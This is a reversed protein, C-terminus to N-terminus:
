EVLGALATELKRRARTLRVGVANGSLGLIEGVEAIPLEELYRLVVVERYRRPLARVASRVRACTERRLSPGAASPAPKPRQSDRRGRWLRLRLLRNRRQRRCHNVTIRFLWTSLQSEGRFSALNQMATMFVDQVVDEIDDNWGLLRRALAAVRDQHRAVIAPLAAPDGPTFGDILRRENRDDSTTPESSATILRPTM